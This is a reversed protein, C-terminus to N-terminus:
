SYTWSFTHCALGNGETPFPFHLSVRYLSTVRDLATLCVTARERGKFQAGTTKITLASVQWAKRETLEQQFSERPGSEGEACNFFLKNKKTPLQITLAPMQVKWIRELIWNKLLLWWTALQTDRTKLQKWCPFFFRDHLRFIQAEYNPTKLGWLLAKQSRIHGVPSAEM